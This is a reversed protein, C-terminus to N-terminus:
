ELNIGHSNGAVVRFVPFKAAIREFESLPADSDIPLHQRAGPARELYAKLIPARRELSVEELHVQESRGHRLTVNGGAAKANQVWNSEAGLMSVLYREGKIIVMVLPLSTMRGSRRGRVELTVLYNPAIGLGHVILISALWNPHGGHYLWKRLKM